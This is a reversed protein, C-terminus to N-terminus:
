DILYGFTLWFSQNSFRWSAGGVQVVSPVQTSYKECLLGGKKSILCKSNQSDLKLLFHLYTPLTKYCFSYISVKTLNKLLYCVSALALEYESTCGEEKHDSPCTRILGKSSGPSSLLPHVQASTNRPKCCSAESIFVQDEMLFFFICSPIQNGM